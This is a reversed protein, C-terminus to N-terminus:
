PKTSAKRFTCKAAQGGATCRGAARLRAVRRGSQLVEVDVGWPTPVIRNGRPYSTPVFVFVKLAGGRQDVLVGIGKAFSGRATEPACILMEFCGNRYRQEV